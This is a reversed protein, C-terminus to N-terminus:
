GRVRVMAPRIVRDGMQYGSRWVETVTPGAPAEAEDGDGADTDTDTVPESDDMATAEHVTPDFGVGVEDIRRLGERALVDRLQSNVQLVATSAEDAPPTEGLGLHAMALELSDLVPLLRIVLAESARQRMESQQRETRRRFNNFDAQLRKLADLYEDREASIRGFDDSLLSELGSLDDAIDLRFLDEPEAESEMGGDAAGVAKRANDGAIALEDAGGSGPSTAGPAGDEILEADVIDGDDTPRDDIGDDVAGDIDRGAEGSGLVDGAGARNGKAATARRDDPRESSENSKASM